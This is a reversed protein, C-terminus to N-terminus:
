IAVLTAGYGFKERKADQYHRIHPHKSLRRHIEQRLKGNGVGHIFVLETIGAAIAQDLYREFTDLQLTLMEANNMKAYHPTLKEIHLDVEKLNHTAAKSSSQPVVLEDTLSNPALMQERLRIPDVSPQTPAEEDSLHVQIDVQVQWPSDERDLQLTYAQKGLIPAEKKSKFFSDAKCKLKRYFPTKHQHKGMAFYLAQFVFVGWQEFQDLSLSHVKQTKRKGLVGAYLGNHLSDREESVSLCLDYDTNNILYLSLQKDNVPVFAAYFGKQSMVQPKAAEKPSSAEKNPTGFREGEEKAITVLETKLVPITFGDEIEVEVLKPDILRTIVGEERGHLLRVRDGINM